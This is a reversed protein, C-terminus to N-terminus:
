VFICNILTDARTNFFPNPSLLLLFYICVYIYLCVYMSVCHAKHSSKHSHKIRFSEQFCNLFYILVDTYLGIRVQRRIMQEREALASNAKGKM